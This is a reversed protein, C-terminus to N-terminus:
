SLAGLWGRREMWKILELMPSITLAAGIDSRDNYAKFFQILALSVFTPANM